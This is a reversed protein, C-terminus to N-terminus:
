GACRRTKITKVIQRQRIYHWVNGEKWECLPYWDGRPNDKAEILFYHKRIRKLLWDHWCDKIYDKTGLIIEKM